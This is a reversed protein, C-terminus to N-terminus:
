NLPYMCLYFIHKNNYLYGYNLPFIHVSGQDIFGLGVVAISPLTKQKWHNRKNLDTIERETRRM